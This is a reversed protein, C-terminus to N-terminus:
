WRVMPAGAPRRPAHLGRQTESAWPRRRRPARGMTAPGRESDELSLDLVVVTINDVRGGRQRRVLEEVADETRRCGSPDERDARGGGHGHARGFLPPYPGRGARRARRTSRCTPSPGSPARSCARHPHVDAEQETIEGREGDAPRAHPGRDAHLGGDRLLHARSDGVHALRLRGAEAVAATLTTGMGRGRRRSQLSRVGCPEGRPPPRRPTGRGRKFLVELTELALRSAVEGGQHGGMGDAVAFLPADNLYADENGDRVRGIDTAAAATIRVDVAGHGVDRGCSWFRRGSASRTGRASRARHSWAVSM